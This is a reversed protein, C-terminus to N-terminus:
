RCASVACIDSTSAGEGSRSTSATIVYPRSVNSTKEEKDSSGAASETAIGRDKSEVGICYNENTETESFSIM